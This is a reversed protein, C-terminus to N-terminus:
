FKRTKEMRRLCELPTEDKLLPFSSGIVGGKWSGVEEGVEHNFYFKISRIVKSFLKSWRMGRPRWEREDVTVTAVVKQIKGNRLKYEYPYTEKWKNNEYEDKHFDKRNRRTSHEWSNDKLLISTRFWDKDWPMYITKWKKGGEFNGGGGIYFWMINGHYNFGWAASECDQIGTKIPLNIYLKGWGFFLLPILILSWYSYIILIPLLLLFLLQTISTHIQPREDFYGAKEIFLSSNFNNYFRIWKKDETMYRRM